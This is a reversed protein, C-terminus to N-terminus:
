RLFPRKRCNSPRKKRRRRHKGPPNKSLKKRRRSPRRRRCTEAIPAEEEEFVEEAPEPEAAEVEHKPTPASVLITWGGASQALPDTVAGLIVGAALLAMVAVGAAQPTPMYRDLLSREEEPGEKASEGKEATNPPPSPPRDRAKLWAAVVAAKAAEVSRRTQGGPDNM